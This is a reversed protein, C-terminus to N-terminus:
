TLDEIFVDGYINSVVIEGDPSRFRVAYALSLLATECGLFVDRGATLIGRGPVLEGPNGFRRMAEDRPLAECEARLIEFAAIADTGSTDTWDDVPLFEVDEPHQTSITITTIRTCDPARNMSSAFFLAEGPNFGAFIHFAPVASEDITFRFRDQDGLREAFGDPADCSQRVTVQDILSNEVSRHSATCSALILTSAATLVLVRTAKMKLRLHNITGDNNM